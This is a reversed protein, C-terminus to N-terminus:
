RKNEPSDDQGDEPLGLPRIGRAEADNIYDAARLFVWNPIADRGTIMADLDNATVGLHRSLYSVGGALDRALRLTAQQVTEKFMKGRPYEM